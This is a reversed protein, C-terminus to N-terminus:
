QYETYKDYEFNDKKRIELFYDLGTNASWALIDSDSQAEDWLLINCSWVHCPFKYTM